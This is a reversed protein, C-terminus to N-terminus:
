INEDSWRNYPFIVKHRKQEITKDLKKQNYKYITLKTQRIVLYITLKFFLFYTITWIRM